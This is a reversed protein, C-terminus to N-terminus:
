PSPWRVASARVSSSMSVACPEDGTAATATRRWEDYDVVFGDHDVTLEAEFGGSAYRYRTTGLRAYTQVTRAVTLQPFRLWAVQVTRSQGVDLALRRIPLANTSPSCGLDIDTCGTLAPAQGGDVTWSGRADRALTTTRSRFGRLDTVHVKSTLGEADTLATYEVHVPVDDEAGLVIGTLTLGAAHQDVTCLEDAEVRGSRRWALRWTRPVSM